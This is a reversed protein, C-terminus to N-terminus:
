APKAAAAEPSLSQLDNLFTTMNKAMGEAYCATAWLVSPYNGTSDFLFCEIAWMTQVKANGENFNSFIRGGIPLNITL